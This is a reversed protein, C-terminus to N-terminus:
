VVRLQRQSFRVRLSAYSGYLPIGEMDLSYLLTDKNHASYRLLSM